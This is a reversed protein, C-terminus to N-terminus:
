VTRAVFSVQTSQNTNKNHQKNLAFSSALWVSKQARTPGHRTSGAFSVRRAITPRM